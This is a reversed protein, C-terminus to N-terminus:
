SNVPIDCSDYNNFVKLTLSLEVGSLFDEFKESLVTFTADEAIWDRIHSQRILTFIDKAIELQDSIVDDDFEGDQGAKDIFWMRLNYNVYGKELDGTEFNFCAVPFEPFENKFIWNLPSSFRVQKIQAHSELIATIENRLKKYTM